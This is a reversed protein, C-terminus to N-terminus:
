TTRLKQLHSQRKELLTQRAQFSHRVANREDASLDPHWVSFILVVRTKDSNNHASHLFSDDFILLDNEHWAHQQSEVEIHCNPPIDLPLHATLAHNSQGYHPAISQNPKLFSFFVEFPNNNLNYTPLSNLACLTEPFLESIETNLEGNKYLDIAQWNTSNALENLKSHSAFNQDLYPRLSAKTLQHQMAVALESKIKKASQNLQTAWGANDSSHFPQTLLDPIFFLEPAFNKRTFSTTKDHTQRWQADHIRGANKLNSCTDRHHDSFVQRMVKNAERSRVQTPTSVNSRQWLTLVSPDIDSALSYLSAAASIQHGNKQLWYGGYLYGMANTPAIEICKFHAEGAALADGIQEEINAQRHWSGADTDNSRNYQRLMELGQMAQGKAFAQDVQILLPSNNM